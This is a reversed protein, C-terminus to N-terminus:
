EELDVGSVIYEFEYYVTASILGNRCVDQASLLPPLSLSIKNQIMFLVFM